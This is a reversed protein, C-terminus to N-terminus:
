SSAVRSLGTASTDNAGLKFSSVVQVLEQAQAKLSSAAAAMEEVLAANQQTAHDMQTVAESAQAVGSAQEQSASSIEGVIDTVRRISSVVEQMTSGAQDVLTTGQEVREVSTNILSKIERAAEASRGALSRVESAVVAFGRGHEGARAAEVAANLALINTQFAIGDIVQIISSIKRSAENIGKMTEVVQGVVEGGTVAVTSAGMALQNAQRANDANQRVTAGLQEMSAATEELASAQQETRASLDQNGSAIEASATAVTESGKRVNIIVRALKTQMHQLSRLLDGIEDQHTVEITNGLDGRAVQDAVQVAVALPQIIQRSLWLGGAVGAATFLIMIGYALIKNRQANARAREQAQVMETNLRKGLEQVLTHAERDVGRVAKDGIQHDFNASKFAEFGKVYGEKATALAQTLKRVLVKDENQLSMDDLSKLTAEVSQMQKTHANWYKDLDKPDKGRLLVNKWEQIASAFAIGVKTAGDNSERAISIEQEFTQMTGSLTLLGFMAGAFLLGMSLAFALPLKVSLKM